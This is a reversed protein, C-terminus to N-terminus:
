KEHHFVEMNIINNTFNLLKTNILHIYKDNPPSFNTAKTEINAIFKFNSSFVIMLALCAATIVRFSYVFLERHKQSSSHIKNKVEEEFGYPLDLLENECFNEAVRQACKECAQTHRSFNELEESNLSGTKFKEISTKSIHGTKDFLYDILYIGGEM